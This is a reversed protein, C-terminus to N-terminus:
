KPYTKESIIAENNKGRDAVAMYTDALKNNLADYNEKNKPPPINMLTTLTLMADRGRGIERFVMVTCTNIEQPNVGPRKKNSIQLLM